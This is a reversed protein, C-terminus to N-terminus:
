RHQRDRWYGVTSGEGDGGGPCFADPDDGGCGVGFGPANGSGEESGHGTWYGGMDSCQSRGLGAGADGAGEEVVTVSGDDEHFISM